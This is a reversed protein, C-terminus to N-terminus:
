EECCLTLQGLPVPPPGTLVGGSPTCKGPTYEPETATVGGIASGEPVNVCAPPMGTDTATVTGLQDSCAADSYVSVLSSCSSGAPDSCTCDTCTRDDQYSSALSHRVPYSGPCPSTEDPTDSAVCFTWLGSTTADPRPRLPLCTYGPNRCLGSTTGGCSMAALQSGPDTTMLSHPACSDTKELPGITASQTCGPGSSCGPDAHIPTTAACAGTWADPPEIASSTGSEGCAAAGASAMTPLACTGTSEECECRQCAKAGPMSYWPGGMTPAWRPCVLQAGHSMWYLVPQGWPPVNLPVCEGDCEGAPIPCDLTHHCDEAADPLCGVYGLVALLALARRM